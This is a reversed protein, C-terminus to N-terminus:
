ILNREKAQVIAQTRNHVQLKELISHVYFKITGESLILKGAIQRNSYGEAMLKLVDSERPTFSDLNDVQPKRSIFGEPQGPFAELLRQAYARHIPAPSRLYALLIKRVADKGDLFVRFHGDPEGLALCTEFQALAQPMLEQSSLAIARLLSTKIKRNIRKELGPIRDVTELIEQAEVYKGQALRVRALTLHDLEQRPDRLDGKTFHDAWEGAKALDGNSLWLRVKISLLEGELDLPKVREAFVEEMQRVTEFAAQLNGQAEESVRWPPIGSQTLSPMRGPHMPKFAKEFKSRLRM